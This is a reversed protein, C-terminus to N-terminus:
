RRGERRPKLMQGGLLRLVLPERWRFRLLFRLIHGAAARSETTGAALLVQRLDCLERSGISALDLTRFLALFASMGLEAPMNFLGHFGFTEAAVGSREYSFRAALEAPAFRLGFTGELLDRNRHCINIDEPHEPVFRPDLCAELLRRSRFSFGGNGVARPPAFQPWPAGIYDHDLFRDTWNAPRVPYGDWQVIMVFDTRVHPTLARQLVLSYSERSQLDPVTVVRMGHPADLQGPQDTVFLMDGFTVCGRAREMAALTPPVLRGTVACLTVDRLVLAPDAATM